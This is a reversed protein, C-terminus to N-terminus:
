VVTFCTIVDYKKELSLKTIDQLHFAVNNINHKEANDKAKALMGESIDVGDFSTHRLCSACELVVNGTSCAVDLIDLEKDTRHEKIIGAM